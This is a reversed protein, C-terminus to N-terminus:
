ACFRTYNIAESKGIPFGYESGIGFRRFIFDLVEQLELNEPM